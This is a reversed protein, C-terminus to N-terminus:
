AQATSVRSPEVGYRASFRKVFSSVSAYGARAAVSKVPLRTSILLALAHSLRAEATVERLSTGEEALRRRLTAGSMGLVDEVDLSRWERAPEGAVMDRVRDALRPLPAQLLGTHGAEALAMIFGVLAYAARDEDGEAIAQAWGTLTAVYPAVPESAVNGGGASRQTSALTRAADLVRGSIPVVVAAYCGEEEDLVNEIDVRRANPVVLMEGPDVRLWREGDYARKHGRLPFAILGQPIDVARLLCTHHARVYVCTNPAGQQAMEMLQALLAQVPPFKPSM